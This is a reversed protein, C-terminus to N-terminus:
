CGWARISLTDPDFTIFAANPSIGGPRPQDDRLFAVPEDHGAHHPENRGTSHREIGNWQDDPPHHQHRAVPTSAGVFQNLLPANANAVYTIQQDSTPNSVIGLGPGVDTVTLANPVEGEGCSIVLAYDQVGSTPRMFELPM